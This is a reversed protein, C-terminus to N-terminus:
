WDFTPLEPIVDGSEGDFALYAYGREVFFAVVTLFAQSYRGWENPDFDELLIMHWTSGCTFNEKAIVEHSVAERLKAGDEPTIHCTSIRPVQM